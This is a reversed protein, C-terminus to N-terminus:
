KDGALASFLDPNAALTDDDICGTWSGESCVDVGHMCNSLDGHQGLWITCSQTAGTECQLAQSSTGVPGHVDLATYQPSENDGGQCAISFLALSATLLAVLSRPGLRNLM